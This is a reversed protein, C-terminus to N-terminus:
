DKKADKVSHKLSSVLFPQNFYFNGLRLLCLKVQGKSFSVQFWVKEGLLKREAWMPKYYRALVVGISAFAIWASIM